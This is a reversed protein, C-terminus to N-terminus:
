GETQGSEPLKLLAPPTIRRPLIVTVVTGHNVESQVTIRGQHLDVSHKVIALGLGTGSIAGVNTARHFPEFLRPQDVPPIGIGCDRIEVTIQEAAAQIQVTIVSDIPSYKLANSLLNSFIQRLLREDVAAGIPANQDLVGDSRQVQFTVQHQSQDNFLMEDILHQFFDRLELEVPDLQWRNAEAKEIVLIDNLLNNMNLAANQIRRTHEFYRSLDDTEMCREAYYELLDVSSLITSLPTRFEHSTTSVFRSKLESLEREQCLTKELDAEAQKRQTVDRQIGVWYNYHGLTDTVPFISLEIWVESGDKRYNILEMRVPEWRKLAARVSKLKELDTKPGQLIRPTKGIVEDRSYGMMKSFADNVFIIHPGPLEVPEAETIVVADNANLIVSELLTLWNEKQQRDSVDEVMGAVRYVKGAANRVPFARLMLWRVAGDPRIYRYTIEGSRGGFPRKSAKKVGARDTQHVRTLWENWNKQQARDPSVGLVTECARSIYLIREEKLDYIWFVHPINETMQRLREQSEQLDAAVQNRDYVHHFMDTMDRFYIAIGQNSPHLRLSYWRDCPAYYEVVESPTTQRMGQKLFGALTSHAFDPFMEWLVKGLLSKGSRGITKAAEHNIYTFRWDRDCAIFGDTVSELIQAIQAQAQAVQSQAGQELRRLALRDTEAQKRDTVDALSLVVEYPLMEAERFLPQANVSLWRQPPLGDAPRQGDPRSFSLGLTVAICPIGTRLTLQAPHDVLELVMGNEHVWQWRGDFLDSRTLEPVTLGLMQAASANGMKIQGTPNIVILGEHLTAVISRHRADSRQLQVQSHHRRDLELQFQQNQATLQLIEEALDPQRVVTQDMHKRDSINQSILQIELLQGARNYIGALIWHQWHLSGARVWRHEFQVTRRRNGPPLAAQLQEFGHAFQERLNVDRDILDWLADGIVPQDFRGFCHAFAVNAATITGDVLCRALPDPHHQLLNKYRAESRQLAGIARQLLSKQEAAAIMAARDSPDPVDPSPTSLRPSSLQRDTTASRDTLAAQLAQVQQELARNRQQLQIWAQDSM